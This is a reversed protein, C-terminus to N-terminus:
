FRPQSRSKEGSDHVQFSAMENTSRIGVHLVSKDPSFALPGPGGVMPIELRDHLGGDADVELVKVVHDGALSFFVRQM